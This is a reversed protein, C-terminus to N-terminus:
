PLPSSISCGSSRELSKSYKSTLPQPIAKVWVNWVWQAYPHWPQPSVELWVSGEGWVKRNDKSSQFCSYKAKGTDLKHVLLELILSVSPISVRINTGRSLWLWSFGARSKKAHLFFLVKDRWVVTSTNTWQWWAMELSYLVQCGGIHNRGGNLCITLM